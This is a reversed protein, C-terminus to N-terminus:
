SVRPMHGRYQSSRGSDTREGGFFHGDAVVQFTLEREHVCSYNWFFFGESYGVSERIMPDLLYNYPCFIIDSTLMLERAM